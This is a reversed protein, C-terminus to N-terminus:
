DIEKFEDSEDFEDFLEDTETKETCSVDGVVLSLNTEYAAGTSDICFWLGGGLETSVAYSQGKDGITCVVEKDFSIIDRISDLSWSISMNDTFMTNEAMCADESVETQAGYSGDNDDYYLEASPRIGMLNSKISADMGKQGSEREVEEIFEQLSTTDTPPTVEVTVDYDTESEASLVVGITMEGAYEDEIKIEEVDLSIVSRRTLMTDKTIWMEVTLKELIEFVKGVEESDLGSEIEAFMEEPSPEEYGPYSVTNQMEEEMMTIAMEKFTEFARKTLIKWDEQSIQFTLHYEKNGNADTSDKIKGSRNIIKVIEPDNLLEQLVELAEEQQEGQMAMLEEIDIGIGPMINELDIEIWRNEYESLDLEMFPTTDRLQLYIINDVMKIDATGKFNAEMLGMDGELEFTLSGNIKQNAVDSIDYGMDYSVLYKFSMANSAFLNYMATDANDSVDMTLGFELDGKERAVTVEMSKVTAELLIDLPKPNKFYTFYGYAAGACIGLLVIIIVIATIAKKGGGEKKQESVQGLISDPGHAEQTTQDIVQTMNRAGQAILPDQGGSAFPDPKSFKRVEDGATQPKTNLAKAQGIKAFADAVDGEEWGGQSKLTKIIENRDIGADLQSKIYSILEETVM